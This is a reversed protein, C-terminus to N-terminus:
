EMLAEVARDVRTLKGETIASEPYRGAKATIQPGVEPEVYDGAVDIRLVTASARLRRITFSASPFARPPPLGNLYTQADDSAGQEAAGYLAGDRLWRGVLFLLKGGGIQACLAPEISTHDTRLVVWRAEEVRIEEAVGSALDERAAERRPGLERQLLRVGRFVFVAALVVAFLTGANRAGESFLAAVAGGAWIMLAAAPLFLALLCGWAGLHPGAEGRLRKRESDTLPSESTTHQPPSTM